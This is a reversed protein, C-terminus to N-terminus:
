YDFRLEKVEKMDLTGKIKALTKEKMEKAGNADMKGKEVQKEGIKTLSTTIRAMGSTLFKQDSEIAIVDFGNQASVQAIGHGM